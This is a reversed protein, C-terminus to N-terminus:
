LTALSLQLAPPLSLQAVIDPTLCPVSGSRTHVLCLPTELELVDIETTRKAIRGLRVGNGSVKDLVFKMAESFTRNM